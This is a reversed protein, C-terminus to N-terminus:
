QVCQFRSIKHNSEEKLRVCVNLSLYGTIKKKITKGM